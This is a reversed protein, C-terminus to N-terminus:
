CIIGKKGLTNIDRFRLKKEQQRQKLDPASPKPGFLLTAAIGERTNRGGGGTKSTKKRRPKVRRIWSMVFYHLQERKTTFGKLLKRKKRHLSGEPASFRTPM